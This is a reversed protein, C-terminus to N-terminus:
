SFDFIPLFDLSESPPDFGKGGRFIFLPHPARLSLLDLSPSDPPPTSSFYVSRPVSTLPIPLVLPLRNGGIMAFASFLSLKSLRWVWSCTSVLWSRTVYLFVFVSLFMSVPRPLQLTKSSFDAMFAYERYLWLELLWYPDYSLYFEYPLSEIAEMTLSLCCAYNALRLCLENVILLDIPESSLFLASIISLDEMWSWILVFPCFRHM